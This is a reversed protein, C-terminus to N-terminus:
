VRLAERKAFRHIKRKKLYGTYFLGMSNWPLGRLEISNWLLGHREMSSRPTGYLEMSPGRFKMSIGHFKVSNIIHHDMSGGHFQLSKWPVEQFSWPPILNWAFQDHMAPTLEM